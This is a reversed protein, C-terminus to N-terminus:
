DLDKNLGNCSQMFFQLNKKGAVRNASLVAVKGKAWNETQRRTLLNPNDREKEMIFGLYYLCDIEEVKIYNKVKEIDSIFDEEKRSHKLEIIAIITEVNRQLPNKSYEAYDKLKVIAIDAIYGTGSLEANNFETFIRIGESELYHTGLKRRLHYYLSNKLSDEKLLHDNRYDKEIGGVWIEKLTRDIKRLVSKNITM